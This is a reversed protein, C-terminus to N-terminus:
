FGELVQQLQPDIEVGETKSEVEVKFLHALYVLNGTRHEHEASINREVIKLDADKNENFLTVEKGENEVTFLGKRLNLKVDGLSSLWDVGLIVDYGQVELIRFDSCFHHGQIIFDVGKCINNTVLKEGSASRVMLFTTPTTPLKLEHVILPHIFSHTAGTDILLLVSLNRIQGKYKPTFCRGSNKGVSLTAIEEEERIENISFKVIQEGEEVEREDLEEEDEGELAHLGKSCKHGQNWKENCRFCLGLARKQDM